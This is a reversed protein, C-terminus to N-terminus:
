TISAPKSCLIPSATLKDFKKKGSDQKTQNNWGKDFLYFINNTAFDSLKVHLQCRKIPRITVM